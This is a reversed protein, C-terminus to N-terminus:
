AQKSKAQAPGPALRQGPLMPPMPCGLSEAIARMLEAEDVNVQGDHEIVTACSALLRKKEQPHLTLLQELVRDMESLRLESGGILKVGSLSLQATGAEFAAEISAQEGRGVWAIASLLRQCATSLQSVTAKQRRPQVPQLHHKVIRLLIWEFLELTQDAQALRNLNRLFSDEQSPSLEKLSGLTINILPLRHRRDLQDITSAMAHTLKVMGREGYRELDELQRQRIRPESDLLLCYLVARAGYPQHAADRVPEPIEEILQHALDVHEPAAQGLVEMGVLVGIAKELQRKRGEPQRASAPESRQRPTRPPTVKWSGDWRPEIRRIRQDLPPHTAFISSFMSTVGDAFYMHSFEEAGAHEILGHQSSAGIRKLAGSIGEPNRTFQVASADALFERQRSLAAKIWNGFFTGVAGILVLGGGIALLVLPSSDKGSRRSGGSYMAMRFVHWGILGIVMIGYVLGILRINLRMDGNLIHSFEHAVVGQLEDRSLQEVCGRTIGIVADQPSHGAAFANIGAEELLYVPPVPIGSAISMEEVVNLIRREHRDRTQHSLPRGGLASAVVQGGGRLQSVRMTSAGGIILSTGGAVGALIPWNTLLANLDWKQSRGFETEQLGVTLLVILLCVSGVVGLMGLFFLFVLRRSNRRAQDQHEFFDM